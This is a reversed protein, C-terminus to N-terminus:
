PSAGMLDMLHGRTIGYRELIPSDRDPDIPDELQAAIEEILEHPYGARQLVRVFEPRTIRGIPPM